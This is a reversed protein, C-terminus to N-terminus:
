RCVRYPSPAASRKLARGRRSRCSRRNLRRLSRRSAVSRGYSSRPVAVPPLPSPVAFMARMTFERVVAGRILVATRQESQDITVDESAIDSSFIELLLALLWRARARTVGAMANMMAMHQKPQTTQYRNLGANWEATGSHILTAIDSIRLDGDRERWSRKQCIALRRKPPHTLAM